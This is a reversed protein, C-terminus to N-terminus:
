FVQSRDSRFILFQSTIFEKLSNYEDSLFDKWDAYGRMSERLRPAENEILVILETRLISRPHM